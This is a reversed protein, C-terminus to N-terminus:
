NNNLHLGCEKHAPLEWWWRGDRVHEGARIARTCPACGISTYGKDHLANYPVNNRRIYDWVQEITWEALPSLKILGFQSDWQVPELHERTPSQERRLGCIWVDLGALARKLPKVKRVSCCRKRQEVSEFFPNPGNATLPEVDSHEPFFMKIDIGYHRRTRDILEYTEEPLRGTDLTFIKVGPDLRSVMDTLVQDEGAMSSALAIRGRFRALFHGLIAEAELGGYQRLTEIITKEM